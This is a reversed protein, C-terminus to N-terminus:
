TKNCVGLTSVSVRTLTKSLHVERGAPEYSGASHRQVNGGDDPRELRLANVKMGGGGDANLESLRQIHLM